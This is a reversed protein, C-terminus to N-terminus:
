LDFHYSKPNLSQAARSVTAAFTTLTIMTMVVMVAIVVVVVVVMMMLLLAWTVAQDKGASGAAAVAAAVALMLMPVMTKRMTNATLLQMVMGDHVVTLDTCFGEEPCTSGKGSPHWPEM